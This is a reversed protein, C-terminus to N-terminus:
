SLKLKTFTNCTECKGCPNPINNQYSPTRCYWVLSRLDKPIFDYIQQKAMSQVPYIKQADTFASLIKNARILRPSDNQVEDTATRGIAVYKISPSASCIMGACFSVIDSDWLFKGNYCNYEHTSESYTFQMKSSMYEIIKSVSRSEAKARKEINKLNMHHVHVNRKNQYLKWFLGTSDLGGSLMLLIESNIQM